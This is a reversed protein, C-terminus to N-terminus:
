QVVFETFYVNKVKNESKLVSNLQQIIENRLRMKGGRDAIEEFTRSSLLLIIADKIKPLNKEIDQKVM